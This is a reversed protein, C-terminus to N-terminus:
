LIGEGWDDDPETAPTTPPSAPKIAAPVTAIAPPAAMSPPAPRTTDPPANPEKSERPRPPASAPRPAAAAAAQPNDNTAPADVSSPRPEEAKAPEGYSRRAPTRPAPITSPHPLLVPMDEIGFEASHVDAENLPQFPRPAVIRETIIAMFVGGDRCNCTMTTVDGLLKREIGCSPCKWTRRVDLSTKYGPGKM